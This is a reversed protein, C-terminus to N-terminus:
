QGPRHGWKNNDEPMEEPGFESEGKRKATTTERIMLENVMIDGNEYKKFEDPPRLADAPLVQFRLNSFDVTTPRAGDLTQIRVPFEQADDANWVAFHIIAGNNAAVTAVAKHCPHGNVNEATRAAKADWQVNTVETLANIPAYGQLAVNLAYGLNKPVDWIFSVTKGTKRTQKTVGPGSMPTYLFRGFRGLLEGSVMKTEQGPVPTSIVVHANFGDQNTLLVGGPGALFNPPQVSLGSVGHGIISNNKSSSCGTFILALSAAFSAILRWHTKFKKM